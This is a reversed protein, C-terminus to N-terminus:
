DNLKQIQALFLEVDRELEEKFAKNLLHTFYDYM